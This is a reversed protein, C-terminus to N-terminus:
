KKLIQTKKECILLTINKIKNQFIPILYELQATMFYFFLQHLILIFYNHTGAGVNNM